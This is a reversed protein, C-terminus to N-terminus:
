TKKGELHKDYEVLGEPNDLGLRKTMSLDGSNDWSCIPCYLERATDSRVCSYGCDQCKFYHFTPENNMTSRREFKWEELAERFVKMKNDAIASYYTV